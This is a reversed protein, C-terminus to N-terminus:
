NQHGPTRPRQIRRGPDLYNFVSHLSRLYIGTHICRSSDYSVTLDGKEYTREATGRESGNSSSSPSRVAPRRNFEAFGPM